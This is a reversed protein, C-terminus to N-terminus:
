KNENQLEGENIEKNEESLNNKTTFSYGTIYRWWKVFWLRRLSEKFTIM